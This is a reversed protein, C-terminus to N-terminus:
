HGTDEEQVPFRRRSEKPINVQGYFCSDREVVKIRRIVSDRRDVLDVYAYRSYVMPQLGAAHVLYGRFWIKEGVNYVSKDTHLYLKEQQLERLQATLNGLLQKEFLSLEKFACVLLIIGVFVVVKKM